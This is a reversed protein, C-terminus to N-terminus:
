IHGLMQVTPSVSSWRNSPEFEIPMTTQQSTGESTEGPTALSLEERLHSNRRYKANLFFPLPVRRGPFWAARAKRCATRARRNPRTNLTKPNLRFGPAQRQRECPRQFHAHTLKLCNANSAAPSTPDMRGGNFPLSGSGSTWVLQYRTYHKTCAQHVPEVTSHENTFAINASFTNRKRGQGGM